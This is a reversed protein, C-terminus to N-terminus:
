RAFRRAASLSVLGFLLLLAASPEPVGTLWTGPSSSDAGGVPYYGDWMRISDSGGTPSGNSSLSCPGAFQCGTSGFSEVFISWEVIDGASNTGVSFSEVVYRSAYVNGGDQFYRDTLLSEVDQLPMDPPLPDAFILFGHVREGVFIGVLDAGTYGYIATATAPAAAFLLSLLTPAVLLAVVNRRSGSSRERM